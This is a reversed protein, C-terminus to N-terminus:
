RAQPGLERIKRGERELAMPGSQVRWAGYSKM